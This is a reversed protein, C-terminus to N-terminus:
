NSYVAEPVSWAANGTGDNARLVRDVAPGGGQIQVTGRVVTNGNVDLKASTSTVGVGVSGSTTALFTDGSSRLESYVGRPSPYYTTLTVDEAVAYVGTGLLVALVVWGKGSMGM